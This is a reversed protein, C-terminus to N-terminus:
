IAEKERSVLFFLLVQNEEYMNQLLNRVKYYPDFTFFLM